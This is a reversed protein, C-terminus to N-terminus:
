DYGPVRFYGLICETNRVAIQVHTKERFGSGDFLSGGEEFVGYVTDYRQHGLKERLKHCTEIVACDLDRKLYVGNDQKTNQPMYIENEKRRQETLKIFNIFTQIETSDLDTFINKITGSVSNKDILAQPDFNHFSQLASGILLSIDKVQKFHNMFGKFKELTLYSDRNEINHNKLLKTLQLELLPHILEPTILKQIELSLRNKDLVQYGKSPAEKAEKSMAKLAINKISEKDKEANPLKRISEGLFYHAQKIEDKVGYDTLNLCLSPIIFAGIVYPDTIEKSERAWALGREPSDVWFYIGSGLWDYSNDSPKLHAKNALVQEAVARDCGHYGIIPGLSNKVRAM